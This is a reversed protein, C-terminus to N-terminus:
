IRLIQTTSYLKVLVGGGGARKLSGARDILADTGEAAEVGLIIGQQVVVAQGIDLSGLQRAATVGRMVDQLDQASAAVAGLQGAPTLIDAFIDQIGVVRFGEAEIIKAIGRLVGDDGLMAFGIQLLKQMTFLDPKLELLSPRRVRGIMVIEQAGATRMADRAAAGAGLPLWVHPRGQPLDPDAQGEICILTYPRRIEDLVALLRRPADGGGALVGLTASSM